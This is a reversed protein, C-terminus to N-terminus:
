CRMRGARGLSGRMICCWRGIAMPWSHRCWDSARFIPEVYQFISDAGKQETVKEVYRGMMIDGVFSASLVDDSYTKVKPTEAKGAWMFAFMLVFVIPIAIFVHKNTKKKQQKTLKLLKEHFSLEKKM